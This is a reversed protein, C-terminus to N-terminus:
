NIKVLAGAIEHIGIATSNIAAGSNQIKQTNYVSNQNGVGIKVEQSGEILIKVGKIEITGDSLMKISSSGTRLFIETAAEEHINAATSEIKIQNKVTTTQTDDFKETVAKNVYYDATNKLVKHELPGETVHITTAKTIDETHTGHVTIKRDNEVTQTDNHLVTTTMDYQAHINILEKGKTDDLYMENYGGGGKTSNSKMGSIVMGSPLGYPPMQKANYVRGTIIPRDPDGELFDVIVEQGIRPICIGGWSGGAWAQSVRIWCSSNEDKKGRRDWHFQVKVRGYKDTYIEEGAPGVVVATQSGRVMPQFTSRAARFPVAAPICMFRNAYGADGSGVESYLGGEHAEHTVSTLIYEGNQDDRDHEELTFKFGPSLNRANSQGSITKHKVEEAEVHLRLLESAEEFKTYEGPYDYVELRRNGGQDIRSELETALDTAPTEFNYDTMRYKGPRIEEERIWDVVLEEDSQMESRSFGHFRYKNQVPVALHAAPHDAIILTHKDEEHLFFYFMGEQQMLRSIYNFASERYQVSYEWKRYERQLRMEYFHFGYEEFITRVIDPVTMQQFIRCDATRTLFWMWPVVDAQYRALRGQNPLQSFRSVHGNFWRPTSEDALLVSFAIRQGVIDDFNVTNKRSVFELRFNFLDSLGEHGTFSTLILKDGKEDIPTKVSLFRSEGSLLGILVQETSM